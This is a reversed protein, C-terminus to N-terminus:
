DSRKEKYQNWVKEFWKGFELKPENETLDKVDQSTAQESLLKVTHIILFIGFGIAMLIWLHKVIGNWFMSTAKGMVSFLDQVYCCLFCGPVGCDHGTGSRGAGIQQMFTDVSTYSLSAGGISSSLYWIGLGLITLIMLIKVGKVILWRWWM